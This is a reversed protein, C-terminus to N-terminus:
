DYLNGDPHFPPVYQIWQGADDPVMEVENPFGVACMGRSGEAWAAALQPMRDQYPGTRDGDIEWIDWYQICLSRLKGFCPLVSSLAKPNLHIDKKEVRIVLHGIMRFNDAISRLSRVLTEEDSLSSLYVYFCYIMSPPGFSTFHSKIPDASWSTIGDVAPAFAPFVIMLNTTNHGDRDYCSLSMNPHSPTLLSRYLALQDASIYHEVGDIALSTLSAQKELVWNFLQLQQSFRFTSLEFTSRRLAAEIDKPSWQSVRARIDLHKLCTLMPLVDCLQAGIQKHVVIPWFVVALSHVLFAKGPSALLTDLCQQVVGYKIGPNGPYLEIDRYLLREAELRFAHNALAFVTLQENPLYIAIYRIFETPLM